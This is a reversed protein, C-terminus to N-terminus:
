KMWWAFATPIIGAKFSSLMKGEKDYRFIDGAQTYDLPDSVIVNEEKPSVTIAYFTHSKAEILPKEPLQAADVQMKFVGGVNKFSDDYRNIIWYLATGDANVALKSVTDGLKMSFTKVVSMTEPDICLLSPAEYGAPNEAWGGGDCLCWIKGRGDKVISYPQLGTKVSGVVKDAKTDIKVLADGYSWMNAWVYQGVQVFEETSGDSLSGKPVPVGIRKVVKYQKTDVVAISDSYMQSVYAKDNDVFHMYRPSLLGKEIRGVEKMNAVDCGFIVNSNNVVVWCYAGHIVASQATDGLKFGNADFFCDNRYVGDFAITVSANSYGWNGANVVYLVEEAGLIPDITPKDGEPSDSSCGGALM